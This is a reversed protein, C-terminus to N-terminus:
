VVAFGRGAEGARAAEITANLALLNTQSAISAILGVVDGIRAVAASLEQMLVGTQDAQGVTRQALDSAGEVQRGIEGISVG